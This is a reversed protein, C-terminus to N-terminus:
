TYVALGAVDGNPAVLRVSRIRATDIELPGDWAGGGGHVKVDGVPVASQDDLVLECRYTGDALPGAVSMSIWPAAGEDVVVTGVTGGDPAVLMLREAQPSYSHDSSSRGFTVMVLVLLLAAAALALAPLVYSRRSRVTGATAADARLRASLEPPLEAEPLTLLLATTADGYGDVLARCAGCHHVHDMVRAREDGPLVDLATEAAVARVEDCSLVTM